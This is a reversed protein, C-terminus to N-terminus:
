FPSLCSKLIQIQFKNQNQETTRPIKGYKKKKKNAIILHTSKQVM